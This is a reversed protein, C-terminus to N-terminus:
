WKAYSVSGKLVQTLQNSYADMINWAEKMASGKNGEYNIKDKFPKPNDAGSVFALNQEFEGYIKLENSEILINLTLKGKKFDYPDTKITGKAGSKEKITFGMDTLNKVAKNLAERDITDTTIIILNDNKKPGFADEQSWGTFPLLFLFILLTNKM